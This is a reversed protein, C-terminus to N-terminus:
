VDAVVEDYAFDLLIDVIQHGIVSLGGSLRRDSKTLNEATM